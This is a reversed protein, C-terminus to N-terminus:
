ETRRIFIDLWNVGGLCLEMAVVVVVVLMVESVVEGPIQPRDRHRGSNKLNSLLM